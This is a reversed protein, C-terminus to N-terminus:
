PLAGLSLLKRANARDKPRDFRRCLHLLESVEPTFTRVGGYMRAQRSLPRVPHWKGSERVHFGTMIEVTLPADTWRGFLRSRFRTDPQGPARPLGLSDLLRAADEEGCLLDVDAIDVDAGCMRMVASGIIGGRSVRKM